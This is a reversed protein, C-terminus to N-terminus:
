SRELPAPPGCISAATLKDSMTETVGEEEPLHSRVSKGAGTHTGEMSPLGESVCQEVTPWLGGLVGSRWPDLWSGGGACAEWLNLSEKLCGDAGTLPDEM